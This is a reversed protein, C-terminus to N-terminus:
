RFNGSTKWYLRKYFALAFTFLWLMYPILVMRQILGVWDHFMSQGIPLAAAFIFLTLTASLLISMLLTWPAFSNWAPDQYFQRLFVFCSIPMLFFAIGGLIAHIAGHLTTQSRPANVPDMVFPGSIFLCAAFITILTPGAQTVNRKKFEYSVARAFFLFLTGFILFNAIQILGRPGLSLASVYMDMATYGPRLLGEITFIGVFLIPAITGALAALRLFKNHTKQM